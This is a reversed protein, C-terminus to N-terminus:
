PINWIKDIKETNLNIEKNKLLYNSLAIGIIFFVIGLFIVGITYLDVGILENLHYHFAVGSFILYIIVLVVFIMPSFIDIKKYDM